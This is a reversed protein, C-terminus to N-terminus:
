FDLRASFQMQRNGIDPQLSTIRGATPSGINANPFGFQPTNLLNFADARFQLRFRGKLQFRRTLSADLTQVGPAYLVGRGSSGYTNPTPARFADIDFWRDVTPNDLRGDGIRDPWSPAGNNVGTNLFVTFPRGTSLTVIGSFQWDGLLANGIGGSALKHGEGFPLDWVYSLVFRHKVDFGSPGRSQEFLTVSQPGGVAGGGSAPAGAHDLSKGFTYSLLFQLGASYRKVLKVQLSNFSSSNTPDFQTMNSLNSLPQILRRSAQSGLGPQVENPNFAWILNSGRSGAYAIETMLSNTIQREYSVQWSEMHPTENSYGHGIVRPNAANLEATTGPKVPSVAPFPNQLRPVRSPSFDLPNTETSYNQSITFPVNLHINNGAAHPVPFYSKGYGARLVHRGSGAVDWALGLRPALNGWRLQKNARRDATEGAYVLVNNARDFNALRNNEETDPVFLEYRLGLNVTLRSNVKWDDQVYLSHEHNTFHPVELIFGRSGGTTYGLLLTALGSGGSNTAPNNTLNRNIAIASRTNDNIFPSPKRWVLRYGTKLSHRSKVWSLSDEIQYHIQQPNVPLFAPGGSIGTVDQINLNPLGSTAPSLNIGQIGLSSAANHGYDSQVTEPNTKAFGVRLENVVTPGLIRTWNLVAGMTWLRTNQIGAVYPGLDFKSAAEAPTALCCAAQGQPADLKYKDYSFRLFFSDKNSARHDIRLTFNNDRVSRNDTSTYNNFDGPGNPLPYISAVNMGVRDLRDAPIVNGPFADRLFQPNTASVPRTPDFSPNLRTTLPDYIPILAGAPTRYDSFDGRRTKETPVTNVFTLGRDEKIGAYDVFFFTKNRVIPGSLAAGYQHRDLPPKKATPLAFFNKADFAENRLFEFAAGHLENNGSKTSVSVVGAGRGFEASFTGTLVKFERVSELTPQVIVTNFTYENNDIGDVLWANTNAQSGLANFNSAGRPNFTSAGSLNEGAQGPTIGPALYVLAAFNRGNLPLERIAREEIVEGLEASDSRTLPALATVETAESFTGVELTADIRARENVQLVVGKRVLKKFGSMEIAVEYTGPILFPANYSGTADTTFTSATGKNVDSITVTAGPIAAGGPDKVTGVITGTTVQAEGAASLLGLWLALAARWAINRRM